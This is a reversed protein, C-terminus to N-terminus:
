WTLYHTIEEGTEPDIGGFRPYTPHHTDEIADMHRYLELTLREREAPLADYLNNLEHPDKALNYFEGRTSGPYHILKWERTRYCRKDVAEAYIARRPSYASANGSGERLLPSLDNGHTWEPPDFGALSALTPFLDVSEILDDFRVGAPARAMTEPLRIACPVHLMCDLLFPAKAPIGHDGTFEGHDSLFVVITNEDLKMDHLDAMILGLQRDLQSIMGYYAAKMRRFTGDSSNKFGRYKHTESEFYLSYEIPKKEIDDPARRFGPVENPDYMHAFKGSPVYPHHPGYFGIWLFFPESEGIQNIYERSRMGVYSDLHCEEPLDSPVAGLRKRFEPLAYGTKSEYGLDRVYQEFENPETVAYNGDDRERWDRRISDAEFYDVHERFRQQSLHHKGICATHYGNRKLFEPLTMENENVATGNWRVGHHRPYRGTMFTTRSPSCVPNQVFFNDLFASESVLQDIAPTKIVPDGTCGLTDYRLHDATIFIINPHHSM